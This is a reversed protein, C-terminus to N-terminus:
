LEEVNAFVTHINMGMTSSCKIIDNEVLKMTIYVGPLPCEWTYKYCVGIGIYLNGRIYGRFVLFCTKVQFYISVVSNM